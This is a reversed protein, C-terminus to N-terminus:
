NFILWGYVILGESDPSANSTPSVDTPATGAPFVASSHSVGTPRGM